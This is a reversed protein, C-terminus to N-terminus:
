AFHAPSHLSHVRILRQGPPNSVRSRGLVRRGQSRWGVVWIRITYSTFTEFGANGPLIKLSQVLPRGDIAIRDQARVNVFGGVM